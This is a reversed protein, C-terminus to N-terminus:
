RRGRALRLGQVLKLPAGSRLIGREYIRAALAILLAAFALMLVISLGLQWAPLADRAARAPVILPALPPVFTLVQALTGDADQIATSTAIYGGVLVVLLPATVSQLDEQRSVIAGAAAFAAAYLMFGLVFYVLVLALSGATTAPLELEGIATALAIGAGAVVVLQALGVVGIGLVKGALLQRPRITALLLEVVRSTKEEVVGGAVMYGFTLIAIYLLLTGLFAIAEAAESGAPGVREVALPPPDLIARARSPPVGSRRLEETARAARAGAQLASLLEDDTDPGAILGDGAIAADVTGVEVLSRAAAASPADRLELQVGAAPAAARAAAAVREASAGAVSVDYSKTGDSAASLTILVILIGVQLALSARFARSRFRERMERRAALWTARWASM